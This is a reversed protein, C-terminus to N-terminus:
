NILESCINPVGAYLICKLFLTRTKRISLISTGSNHIPVLNSILSSPFLIRFAVIIFTVAFKCLTTICRMDSIGMSKGADKFNTIRHWYIFKLSLRQFRNESLVVKSKVPNVRRQKVHKLMKDIYLYSASASFVLDLYVTYLFIKSYINVQWIQSM